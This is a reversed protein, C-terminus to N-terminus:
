DESKIKNELVKLRHAMEDLQHFRAINKIWGTYEKAPIGSSYVGPKKISNGVQSGGIFYTGEPITIHGNIITGGGIQCHAGIDASGAIGVCAAIATYKRIRVNHAIQVLNDIIVGEEIVTNNIMGRDITTNAGIEVNNGIEVGGIHPIKVWQNKDQVFGFGDGGLVVGSHIINNEGLSVNSYLTVNPYIHTNKGLTCHDGIVTNAGIIVQDGIIVNEGIVCHPGICASPAIVSNNSVVASHHIGGAARKPPYFLHIVKSFALKPNPVIIIPKPSNQLQPVLAYSVLIAAAKSEMLYKQYKANELFCLEGEKAQEITGVGFIPVAAHVSDLQGGIHQAIEQLSFSARSSITSLLTMIHM